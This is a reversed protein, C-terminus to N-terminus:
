DELNFTNGCHCTPLGTDAWISTLRIIYGCLCVAKLLRTTQKKRGSNASLAAHTYDGLKKILTNLRKKLDAGVKTATMKGELGLPKALRSFPAKHGAGPTAVHVLEHLLIGLVEIPDAIAPSIFIQPVGDAANSGAWCEGIRRNSAATARRSPWGVSVRFPGPRSDEPFWGVMIAGAQELWRERAGGAKSM